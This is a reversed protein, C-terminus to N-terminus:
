NCTFSKEAAFHMHYQVWQKINFKDGYFVMYHSYPQSLWLRGNAWVQTHRNGKCICSRHNDTSLPGSSAATWFMVYWATLDVAQSQRDLMPAATKSFSGTLKSSSPSFLIPMQLRLRVSHNHFYFFKNHITEFQLFSKNLLLLMVMIKWYITERNHSDETSSGGIKHPWKLQCSPHDYWLLVVITVNCAMKQLCVLLHQTYCQQQSCTCIIVM